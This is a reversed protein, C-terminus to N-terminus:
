IANVFKSFNNAINLNDKKTNEKTFAVTRLIMM